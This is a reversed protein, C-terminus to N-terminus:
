KIGILEKKIYELCAVLGYLQDCEWSFITPSGLNKIKFQDNILILQKKFLVRFWEDEVKTIKIIYEFIKDKEFIPSKIEWHFESKGKKGGYFGSMVDIVREEELYEIEDQIDPHIFGYYAPYFLESNGDSENIKM